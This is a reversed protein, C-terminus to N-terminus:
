PSLHTRQERHDISAVVAGLDMGNLDKGPGGRNLFVCVDESGRRIWEGQVEPFVWSRM